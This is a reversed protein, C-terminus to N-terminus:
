GIPHKVGETRRTTALEIVKAVGSPQWLKEYTAEASIWVAIIVVSLNSPDTVAGSVVATVTGVVLATIGAVITRHRKSWRPNQIVSTIPPVLAGILIGLVAGNATIFAVAAQVVDVLQEM